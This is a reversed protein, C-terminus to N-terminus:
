FVSDVLGTLLFYLFPLGLKLGPQPGMGPSYLFILIEWEFGLLIGINV